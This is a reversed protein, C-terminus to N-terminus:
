DDEESDEWDSFGSETDSLDFESFFENMAKDAVVKADQAAQLLQRVHAKMHQKRQDPDKLNVVGEEAVLDDSHVSMGDEEEAGASGFDLDIVAAAEPLVKKIVYGWVPVISQRSIVVAEAILQVVVRKGVVSEPRKGWLDQRSWEPVGGARVLMGWMPTMASLTALSPTASFLAKNKTLDRLTKERLANIASQLSLEPTPLTADREWRLEAVTLVPPHAFKVKFSGDVQREPVEFVEM